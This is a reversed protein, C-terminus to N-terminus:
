AAYSNLTPATRAGTCIISDPLLRQPQPLLLLLWRGWLLRDVLLLVVRGWRWFCVNVLATGCVSTSPECALLVVVLALEVEAPTVSSLLLLLLVAVAM